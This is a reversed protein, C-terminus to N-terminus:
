LIKAIVLDNISQFGFDLDLNLKAKLYKYHVSLIDLILKFLYVDITVVGLEEGM